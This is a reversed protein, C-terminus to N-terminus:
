VDCVADVAPHGMFTGRALIQGPMEIQGMFGQQSNFNLSLQCQLIVILNTPAWCYLFFMLVIKSLSKQWLLWPLLCFKTCFKLCAFLREIINRLIEMLKWLTWIHKTELQQQYHVCQATWKDRNVKQGPWRHNCGDSGAYVYPVPPPPNNTLGAQLRTFFNDM